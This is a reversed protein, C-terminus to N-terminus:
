DYFEFIWKNKNLLIYQNKPNKSLNQIFFNINEM